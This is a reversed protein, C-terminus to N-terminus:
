QCVTISVLLFWLVLDMGIIRFDSNLVKLVLFLYLFVILSQFRFKIREFGILLFPFVTLILSPPPPVDEPECTPRLSEPLAM